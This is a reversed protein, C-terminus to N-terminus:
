GVEEFKNFKIGLIEETTAWLKRQIEKHYTIDKSSTPINDFLYKGSVKELEPATAAYILTKAGEFLTKGIYGMAARLLKTNISGPHLCNVIIDTNNLKDALLYTYMILCTKSRAYAKVGTYGTEYQLDNFNLQNSHVRSAVNVIRSSKGKKLLDILLNTLLFPAIYNVAFTEELGEQNINRESRYVGANNILVDLRNFRYYISSVMEEIQGFSSLDAYVSSINNKNTIKQINKM